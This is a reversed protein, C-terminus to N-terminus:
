QSTTVGPRTREVPLFRHLAGKFSPTRQATRLAFVFGGSVFRPGRTMGRVQRLRQTNVAAGPPPPSVGGGGPGMRSEVHVKGEAAMRPAATFRERTVLPGGFHKPAPQPSTSRPWIDAGPWIATAAAWGEGEVSATRRADM